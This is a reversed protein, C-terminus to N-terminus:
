MKLFESGTPQLLRQYNPDYLEGRKTSHILEYQNFGSRDVFVFIVGNEINEYHWIEYPKTDKGVSHREIDSPKGYRLHIMGRDTRWGPKGSRSYYTNVYDCEHMYQLRFDEVSVAGPPLHTLWLNYIFNRRGEEKLSRYIDRDEKKTVAYLKDFEEDLKKVDFGDLFHLTLATQGSNAALSRFRPNQVLFIKSNSTLVADASDAISYELRYVGSPLDQVSFQGIERIMDHRLEREHIIAPSQECPKGQVDLIRAKVKFRNAPITRQLDYAEYYFFLDKNQEGFTMEPNPIICYYRKHFSEACSSDFPTIANALQVDSLLPADTSYAHSTFELQLSDLSERQMDRAFLKLQYTQGALIPYRLLDVLQKDDDHQATDLVTNTVRWTKNAWLTDNHVIELSLLVECRLRGDVLTYLPGNEPLSYYIEMYSQGDPNRFQAVDMSLSITSANIAPAILGCLSLIFIWRWKKM